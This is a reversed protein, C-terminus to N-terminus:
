FPGICDLDSLDSDYEPLFIDDAFKSELALLGGCIPDGHSARHRVEDMMFKRAEVVKDMDVPEDNNNNRNTPFM